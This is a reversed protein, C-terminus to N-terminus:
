ATVRRRRLAALGALGSVMLVAAGPLPVPSATLQFDFGYDVVGGLEQV